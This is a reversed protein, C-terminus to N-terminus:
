IKIVKSEGTHGDTITLTFSIAHGRHELNDKIAELLKVGEYLLRDQEIETTRLKRAPIDIEM